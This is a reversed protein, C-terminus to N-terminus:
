DSSRDGLASRGSNTSDEYFKNLKYKLLSANTIVFFSKGTLLYVFRTFLDAKDARFVLRNNEMQLDVQDADIFFKISNPIKM